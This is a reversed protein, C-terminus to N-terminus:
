EDILERFKDVDNRTMSKDERLKTRLSYKTQVLIGDLSILTNVGEDFYEIDKQRYETM